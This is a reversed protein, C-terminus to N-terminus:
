TQADGADSDEVDRGADKPDLGPQPAAGLPGGDTSGDEGSDTRSYKKAVRYLGRGAAVFGLGLGVWMLVPATGFQGDLWRGGFFGIAIAAAMEIGISGVDIAETWASRKRGRASM